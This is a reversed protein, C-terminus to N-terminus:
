DNRDQDRHQACCYTGSSSRIAENAPIHTGCYDCKLMREPEVGNEARQKGTHRFLQILKYIAWILLLILLLRFIM